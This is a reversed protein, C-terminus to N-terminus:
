LQPSIGQDELYADLELYHSLERRMTEMSSHDTARAVCELRGQVGAHEMLESPPCGLAWALALIENLKAARTGQEIRSLTPQAIGSSAALQRQSLEAAERAAVIRGSSVSGQVLQIV